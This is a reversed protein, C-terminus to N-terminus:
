ARHDERAEDPDENNRGTEIRDLLRSLVDRESASLGSALLEERRAIDAGAREALRMGALTARLAHSRRDEPVRNRTILNKKELEDLIAVVGSREISLASALWSQTMDPNAAILTLASFTTLRLGHGSLVPQLDAEIVLYARKIRYGLHRRLAGDGADGTEGNGTEQLSAAQRMRGM